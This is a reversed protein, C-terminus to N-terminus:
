AAPITAATLEDQTIPRAETWLTRGAVVDMKIGTGLNGSSPNFDSRTDRWLRVQNRDSLQLAAVARLALQYNSEDAADGLLWITFNKIGKRVLKSRILIGLEEETDTPFAYCFM